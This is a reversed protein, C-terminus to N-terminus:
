NDMTHSGRIFRFQRSCVIAEVALSFRYDNAALTKQMEALLPEDSLQVERGLAYGLLKKCFQRMVDDHRDTTLYDRLGDIGEITKGDLLTAKTNALEPRVRGIADFQELAFGYPDIRRHCKACEPVSSHQEIM